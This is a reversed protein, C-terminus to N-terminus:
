RLPWPSGGLLSTTEEGKGDKGHLRLSTPGPGQPVPANGGADSKRGLLSSGRKDGERRLGGSAPGHSQYLLAMVELEAEHAPIGEEIYIALDIDGPQLPSGKLWSSFSGYLYTFVVFEAEELTKRLVEVLGTPSEKELLERYKAKEEM